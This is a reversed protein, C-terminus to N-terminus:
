DSGADLYSQLKLAENSYIWRAGRHIERWLANRSAPFGVGAGLGAKALRHILNQRLLAYHAGIGAWGRPILENALGNFDFRTIGILANSPLWDLSALLPIDFSMLHFDKAPTLDALLAKLRAKQLEPDPWPESKVEIMLHFEPRYRAIFAELTPIEPAINELEQLSLDAVRQDIGWLRKLDPDHIVVAQLDATWRIDFELGWVGSGVLPDFAAFTNEKVRNDDREGRHSVLQCAARADASPTPQPLSAHIADMLGEAGRELQSKLNQALRAKLNSAPV